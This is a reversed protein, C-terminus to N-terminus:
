TSRAALLPPERGMARTNIKLWPSFEFHPHSTMLRDTPLEIKKQEFNEGAGFKGFKGLHSTSTKKQGCAAIEPCNNSPVNKMMAFLDSKHKILFEKKSM